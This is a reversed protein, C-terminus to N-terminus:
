PQFIQRNNWLINDWSLVKQTGDCVTAFIGGVCTFSFEHVRDPPSTAVNRLIDPALVQRQLQYFSPNRASYLRTDSIPERAPTGRDYTVHMEVHEGSTAEFVWDQADM